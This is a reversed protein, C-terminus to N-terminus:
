LSVWCRRPSPRSKKSKRNRSKPEVEEEDLRGVVVQLMKKEGGRLLEVDVSKGIPAQAVLRPLGRM